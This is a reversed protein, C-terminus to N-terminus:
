FKKLQDSLHEGSFLDIGLASKILYLFLFIFASILLNIAILLLTAAILNGIRTIGRVPYERQGRRREKGVLLVLYFRSLILDVTLRLDVIKPSHKPIAEELIDQIATIQESNFSSLIHPQIKNLYYEPTRNQYPVSTQNKPQFKPQNM